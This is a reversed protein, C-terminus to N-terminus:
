IDKLLTLFLMLLSIIFWVCLIYECVFINVAKLHNSSKLYVILLLKEEEFIVDCGFCTMIGNIAAILIEHNPSRLQTTPPFSYYTWLTSKFNNTVIWVYCTYNWSWLKIPYQYKEYVGRHAFFWYRYFSNDYTWFM